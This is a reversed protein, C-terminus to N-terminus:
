PGANEVDEVLKYEIIRKVADSYSLAFLQLIMEDKFKITRNYSYYYGRRASNSTDISRLANWNPTIKDEYNRIFGSCQALDYGDRIQVEYAGGRPLRKKRLRINRPIDPSYSLQTATVKYSKPCTDIWALAADLDEIRDSFYRVRRGEWRVHSENNNARDRLESIGARIMKGRAHEITLRYKYKGYYKRDSMHAAIDHESAFKEVETPIKTKTAM